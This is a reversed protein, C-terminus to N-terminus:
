YGQLQLVAAAASLCLLLMNSLLDACRCAAADQLMCRLQQGGATVAKPICARLRTVTSAGLRCVLALVLQELTACRCNTSSHLALALRLLLLLLV